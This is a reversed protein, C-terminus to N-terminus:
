LGTHHLTCGGNVAPDAGRYVRRMRTRSAITSTEDAIWRDDEWIPEGDKRWYLGIAWRPLLEGPYWKGQGYHLMGGPCTRQRIRRIFQDSLPKKTPGVAETNWEEGEQDHLSIFTPEGGMSLRVDQERLKDDVSYGLDIISQWQGETYPKTVRPDEHIRTVSMRIDFETKCESLSGEVPAAGKADASTALPIHGEGCFLGSTPDVGVWGAGPLYVEAWAHLDCVDESVGAPADPDVPKEDPALQISYGSVFRAAFGLRRYLQVLLWAFDRCSGRGEKLLREPSYVGPDMRITYDLAQNVTQNVMAVFDNTPRASRDISEFLEQFRARMPMKAFYPRLEKRLASSYEFPAEM